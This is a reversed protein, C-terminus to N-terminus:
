TEGTASESVLIWILPKGPPGTILVRGICPACTWDRTLSSLDWMGHPMALFCFYIFFLILFLLIWFCLTERPLLSLESRFHAFSILSPICDWKWALWWWPCGWPFVDGGEWRMWPIFFSLNESLWPNLTARLTMLWLLLCFFTWLCLFWSASLLLTNTARDHGVWQLGMSQLRGPEETWPIRWALISSHCGNGEGPFTWGKYSTNQSRRLINLDKSNLIQRLWTELLWFCTLTLAVQHVSRWSLGDTTSSLKYGPRKVLNWHCSSLVEWFILM